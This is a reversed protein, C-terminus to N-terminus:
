KILLISLTSIFFLEGDSNIKLIKSPTDKNWQKETDHNHKIKM